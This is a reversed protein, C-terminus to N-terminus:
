ILQFFLYSMILLEGLYYLVHNIICLINNDAKGGFYMTSLVLDSLLILVAGVAFIAFGPVFFCIGLSLIAVLAVVFSYIFVQVKYGSFNLKLPKALLFVLVAFVLAIIVSGISFFLFKSLTNWLLIIAVIYLLSSTSFVGIGANLYLKEDQKYAIKLDLVVDGILAFMLGLVIFINALMNPNLYLAYIGGALFGISAITKYFVALACGGKKCRVYLFLGLFVLCVVSFLCFPFIIKFM